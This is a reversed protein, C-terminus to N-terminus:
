LRIRLNATAPYGRRMRYLRSMPGGRPCRQYSVTRVVVIRHLQAARRGARGLRISLQKRGTRPWRWHASALLAGTSRGRLARVQVAAGCTLSVERRALARVRGGASHLRDLFFGIVDVHECRGRMLPGIPSSFSGDGFQDRLAMVDTGGGCAVDHANLARLLDNGPGGDITRTGPYALLTDNGPGGQVREGAFVVDNGAGGDVTGKGLLAHDFAHFLDNGGRGKLVNASREGANLQNPGDDGALHSVGSGGTLDEIGQLRDNEGAAGARRPDLLDATITSRRGGYDAVDRGDGGDLLDSAPAADEGDSGSDGLAGGGLQDDGPGGHLADVGTGGFLEDAGAGGTLVDTGGGGELRASGITGSADLTDSGEGGRLQSGTPGIVRAANTGDGLVANVIGPAAACTANHPGSTTCEPGAVTITANPDEITASGSAVIVRLDNAEGPAAAYFLTTGGHEPEPNIELRLTSGQAAGPAALAVLAVVGLLARRTISIATM